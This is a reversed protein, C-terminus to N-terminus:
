IFLDENTVKDRKFGNSLLLSYYKILAKRADEELIESNMDIGLKEILIPFGGNAYNAFIDYKEDDKVINQRKTHAYAILDIMDYDKQSFFQMLVGDSAPKDVPKYAKNSYGIVASLVLIDRYANFVKNGALLKQMMEQQEAARRIRYKSNVYFSM